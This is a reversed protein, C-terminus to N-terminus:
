RRVSIRAMRGSVIKKTLLCAVIMFIVSVIAPLFLRVDPNEGIIRICILNLAVCVAIIGVCIKKSPLLAQIMGKRIDAEPFGYGLLVLIERRRVFGYLLCAPSLVLCSLFFATLCGFVRKKSDAMKEMLNNWKITENCIVWVNKEGLERIEPRSLLEYFSDSDKLRLSCITPVAEPADKQFERNTQILRVPDVFSSMDGDLDEVMSLRMTGPVSNEAMSQEGADSVSDEGASVGSTGSVSDEESGPGITEQQSNESFLDPYLDGLYGYTGDSQNYYELNYVEYCDNEALQDLSNDLKGVGTNEDTIFAKKWGKEKSFLACAAKIPCGGSVSLDSGNPSHLFFLMVQDDPMRGELLHLSDKGSLASHLCLIFVLAFLLMPVPFPRLIRRVPLLFFGKKGTQSDCTKNLVGRCVIGKCLDQNKDSDDTGESQVRQIKGESIQYRVDAIQKIRDDHTVVVFCRNEAEKLLVDKVARVM